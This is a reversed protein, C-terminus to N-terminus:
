KGVTESQVRRNRLCLVVIWGFPCLLWLLNLQSRSKRGLHWSTILFVGAVGMMQPVNSVLGTVGELTFAVSAVIGAALWGLVVTWNLHREFWNMTAVHRQVTGALEAGCKGCFRYGSPNQSGCKPCSLGQKM